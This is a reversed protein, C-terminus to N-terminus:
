RPGDPLLLCEALALTVAHMEREVGTVVSMANSLDGSRARKELFEAMSALATAGLNLAAGRLMHAFRETDVCNQAAAAAKMRELTNVSDDIFMKAVTDYVDRGIDEVLAARRRVLAIARAPANGETGPSHPLPAMPKQALARPDDAAPAPRDSKDIKRSAPNTVIVANATDVVREVASGRKDPVPTKTAAAAEIVRILELRDVPKSIFDQMGAELCRTRDERMANATMACLFPRSNRLQDRIRQAVELGDMNPMQLDLFILDYRQRELAELAEVGDAAVDCEYGIRGLLMRAVKQNVVNDEAVLIRLDHKQRLTIDRSVEPSASKSQRSFADGKMCLFEAALAAWRIPVLVQAIDKDARGDRQRQVRDTIHVIRAYPLHTKILKVEALSCRAIIIPERAGRGGQSELKVSSVMLELEGFSSVYAGWDSLMNYLHMQPRAERELVYVHQDHLLKELRCMPPDGDCAPITFFFRAGAGVDSSIGICGGMATVLRHSIALGLGTGGYRRTMSADAQTFSHFLRGQAEKSIGIGTDIVEVLLSRGEDVRSVEVCVSGRETFKVANSLLNVIVQQLRTVDGTMTAPVDPALWVSLALDKEAAQASVLDLCMEMLRHVEFSANELELKGADIKSLDLVDSILALLVQGSGRITEVYEHQEENLPTDALLTTMGIVANLPTRIEHSMNALFEASARAAHQAQDRAAILDSQMAQLAQNAAVLDYPQMADDTGLGFGEGQLSPASARPVPGAGFKGGLGAGLEGLAGVRREFRDLLEYTNDQPAFDSASIGYADAEARSTLLPSGAFVYGQGAPLFQGRLMLGGHHRLTVHRNALRRLDEWAHLAQGEVEFAADIRAGAADPTVRALSPGLKTITCSRDVYVYFPLLKGLSESRM